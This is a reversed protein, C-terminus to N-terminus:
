RGAIIDFTALRQIAAAIQAVGEQQVQNTAPDLQGNYADNAQTEMDELLPTAQAAALQENTMAVLRTADQQVQELWKRVAKLAAEAQKASERQNATAGSANAIADLQTLVTEIIAPTNANGELLGFRAIQADRADIQKGELVDIIHVIQGRIFNTNRVDVSNGNWYDKANAAWLWAKATNRELWQLPSGEPGSLLGRLHDLVSEGGPIATVPLEVKYIQENLSPRAPTAQTNEETIILSHLMALLDSHHPNGQYVFNVQGRYIALKGLLIPASGSNGFLWAYYTKGAAPDPINQITIRLVDNQGFGDSQFYIHGAVTSTATTQRFVLIGITSGLILVLFCAALAIYTRSIRLGKKTPLPTSPMVTTIIATSDESRAIDSVGNAPKYPVAAVPRTSKSVARLKGSSNYAAPMKQAVGLITQLPGSEGRPDEVPFPADNLLTNISCANALAIALQSASAYRTSPDKAMARLIVESLEQPVHPNILIPPTPLTNLHQMMVAVPSEGRFPQIGTCIEYLIVGLAYIDSRETAPHGKVQEPSIYYASNSDSSHGATKAISFDTLIPSSLLRFPFSPHGTHQQLTSNRNLLINSPKINGHIFGNQHAYDIAQGICTFLNVMDAVAPFNGIRSTGRIYEALSIGQIYDMVMYATTTDSEPPRSISVDRIKVINPHYLSALAQGESAFRSMFNPDSQLDPHIIKIAVNCQLQPDYGKWVEGTSGRGMLKQLEYRGIHQPTTNM